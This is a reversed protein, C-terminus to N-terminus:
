EDKIDERFCPIIKQKMKEFWIRGEKEQEKKDLENM